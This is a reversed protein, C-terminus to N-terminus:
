PKHPELIMQQGEVRWSKLQSLFNMGVVNTDGFNDGVFLTLGDAHIPGVTMTDAKAVRVLVTGNATEVMAPFPKTDTGVGAAAATKSSISTVSAGSDILMRGAHGNITVTTWFHGDPGMPVIVTDGVVQQDSLGISQMALSIQPAFRQGVIVVLLGVAFIGVWAAVMKLMQGIPLRRAVLASLPLIILLISMLLQVTKDDSM